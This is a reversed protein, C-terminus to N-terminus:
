TPIYLIVRFKDGEKKIDLLNKEGYILELRSMINQLGIGTGKRSYGNEFNNEVSIVLFRGEMRCKLLITIKDLSDYVAHKIANEFLPQLIMNPVKVNLAEPEIEEFYDFKDEFRIKEIELYLKINKLEEELKNKDKGFLMQLILISIVGMGLIEPISAPSINLSFSNKFLTLLYELGITANDITGKPFSWGFLPWFLIRPEGWMQDEMLHFFSGTALSIIRIDGRKKYVFLGIYLIIFSLLVTHGIMRGTSFTSALIIEGLPKDILDPLLAGVLLYKPDIITRLLPAFICILFFIGLTVGLHGFLLM